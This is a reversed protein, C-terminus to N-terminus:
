QLVEEVPLLCWFMQATLQQSMELLERDMAIFLASGTGTQSLQEIIQQWREIWAGQVAPEPLLQLNRAICRALYVLSLPNDAEAISWQWCREPSQGGTSLERDYWLAYIEPVFRRPEAVHRLMLTAYLMREMCQGLAFLPAARQRELDHAACAMLSEGLMQLQEMSRYQDLPTVDEAYQPESLQALAQVVRNLRQQWRQPLEQHLHELQWLAAQANFHGQACLAHWLFQQQQEVAQTKSLAFGVTGTEQLYYAVWQMTLSPELSESSFDQALATLMQLQTLLREAYRGLWFLSEASRSRRGPQVVQLTPVNVEPAGGGAVWLDKSAGGRQMSIMRQEPQVALRVLGGTLVQYGHECALAYVRIGMPRPQLTWGSDQWQALPSQSLQVLEQAVYAQPLRKIKDLWVQQEAATLQDGYVTEMRQNPFAPKLVLYPLNKLVYDQAAREGCWWTAVAPMLLSDGLWARAIAPLFALLGASELIDSGLPNSVLVRGARLVQMLGPVGLASDSRLELPDCYETDMRRLVGHVRQLGRVTKLYLTNHRVCLDDGQVLPVRLLRALYLQEHYTEHWSGPSLIVALPAEGTDLPLRRLFFAWAQRWENEASVVQLARMEESWLHGLVRRNELLYGLGSPAQTRDAMVWWQGDASRALDAAYIHLYRGGVPQVGSQGWLFGRQGYILASPLLGQHLLTQPGYLDGLIRDLLQARQVMACSILAWDEASLLMPLVDLPWPRQNALPDGYVHYTMGQEHVLRHLHQPLILQKRQQWSDCFQQWLPRMQGQADVLEDYVAVSSAQVQQLYM